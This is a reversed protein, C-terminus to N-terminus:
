DIIIFLILLLLNVLSTLLPGYFKFKDNNIFGIISDLFQIAIMLISVTLLFTNNYIIFTLISLIVIPLSRTLAYYANINRSSISAQLSYGFSVSASIFTFIALVLYM